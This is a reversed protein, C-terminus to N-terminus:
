EKTLWTSVFRLGLFKSASYVLRSRTLLFLGWLILYGSVCCGFAFTTPASNIHLNLLLYVVPLNAILTLLSLIGFRLSSFAIIFGLLFHGVAILSIVLENVPFEFLAMSILLFTSEMLLCTSIARLLAGIFHSPLWVPEGLHGFGNWLGPSPDLESGIVIAFVTALFLLIATGLVLVSVSTTRDIWRLHLDFVTLLSRLAQHFIFLGASAICGRVLVGIRWPILRTFVWLWVGQFVGLTVTFAFFIPLLIVVLRSSSLLIAVITLFFNLSMGVLVGQGLYTGIGITKSDNLTEEHLSRNLIQGYIYPSEVPTSTTPM